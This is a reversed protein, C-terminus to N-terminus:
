FTSISLRHPKPTRYTGSPTLRSPGAESLGVDNEQFLSVYLDDPLKWMSGTIPDVVLMGILGGLVINGYYWEDVQSDLLKITETQDDKTFKVLYQAGKFYGTSAPLYVTQPTVGSYFNEGSMALIEFHAGAPNSGISVPYVSDSVISACGSLLISIVAFVIRIKM